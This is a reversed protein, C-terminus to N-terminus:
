IRPEVTARDDANPNQRLYERYFRLAGATDGMKEYARAANFSLTPSPYEKHADLFADIADKYRGEKYAAIGRDFHKQARAKAEPDRAAPAASDPAAQALARTPAGVLALLVCTGLLM